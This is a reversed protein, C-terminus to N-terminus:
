IRIESGHSQNRYEIVAVGHGNGVLEYAGMVAGQCYRCWTGTGIEPVVLQRPAQRAFGNLGLITLLVLLTLTQTQILCFM